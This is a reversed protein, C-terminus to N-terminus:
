LPCFLSVRKYKLLCFIFFMFMILVRNLLKYDDLHLDIDHNQRMTDDRYTIFDSIFGQERQAKALYGGIGAINVPGHFIKIKM